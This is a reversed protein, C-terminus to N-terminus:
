KFIRQAMEELNARWLIWSHRGGEAPHFEHHIGNHSLIEDVTQTRKFLNDLTGCGMWLLSLNRNVLDAQKLQEAYRQPIDSETVPSFVGIWSFQDPHRLGMALAQMGGMSLGAVAHNKAGAAVGYRAELAPMIDNLLDQEFLANNRGSDPSGFPVAHGFPMVLLMPRARKEALLNDLIFNARGIAEWNTEANGSGHLLVFVPYGGRLRADYGPPTYVFFRRAEGGLTKSHYWNEQVIGHPVDRIDHMSPPDAPVVVLSQAAGNAAFKVLPNGPDAVTVGDITFSYAMVERPLPGVTVSWVGSEDRTMPVAPSVDIGGPAVWEGLLAVEKAQPARLRFTVHGDAAVEPSVIPARRPRAPQPPAPSGQSFACSCAAALALLPKM